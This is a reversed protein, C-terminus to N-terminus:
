DVLVYELFMTFKGATLDNDNSLTVIVNKNADLLIQSAAVFPALEVATDFTTLAQGAGIDILGPLLAIKEGADMTTATAAAMFATAAGTYGISVTTTAGVLDTNTVLYGATILANKPLTGITIATNKTGGDVAVDYVFKQVRKELFMNNAM